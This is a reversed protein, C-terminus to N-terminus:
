WSSNRVPSVASAQLSGAPVKSWRPFAYTVPTKKPEDLPAITGLIRSVAGGDEVLPIYRTMRTLKEGSRTMLFMPVSQEHGALVDPPPCLSGTLCEVQSYDPESVYDCVQGIVDGASWGTLAECGHNFFLVKRRADLVFLPTLSEALWNTLGRRSRARQPM